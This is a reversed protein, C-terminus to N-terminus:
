VAWFLLSSLLSAPISPAQAAEDRSRFSLTMGCPARRCPASADLREWSGQPMFPIWAVQFGREFPHGQPSVSCALTLTVQLLSELISMGPWSQISFMSLFWPMCLALWPWCPAWDVFLTWWSQTLSLSLGPALAAASQLLHWCSAQHCHSYNVLGLLLLVLVM